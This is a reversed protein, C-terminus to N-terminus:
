SNRSIITKRKGLKGVRAADEFGLHLHHFLPNENDFFKSYMPWGNYKEMLEKGVIEEGLVKVANRLSFKEDSDYDVCVYAMGEDAKATEGNQAAITSAFWRETISGRAMGFAFYDDPHLKLRHGAKGFRRPVFAPFLRFVGEGKKFTSRIVAEDETADKVVLNGTKKAEELKADLADGAKKILDKETM